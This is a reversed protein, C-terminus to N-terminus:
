CQFQSYLRFLFVELVFCSSLVELRLIRRLGAQPSGADGALVEESEKIVVLVPGSPFAYLGFIGEADVVCKAVGRCKLALESSPCQVAPLGGLPIGDWEVCNEVGQQDKPTRAISVFLSAATSVKKSEIVVADGFVHLRLRKPARNKSSSRTVLKEWYLARSYEGFTKTSVRTGQNPANHGGCFSLLWAM